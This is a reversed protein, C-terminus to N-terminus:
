HFKEGRELMEIIKKMRNIKTEPKKATQLRWAIAYTNTKNLTEYFAKAKKNKNLENTFEAPLEIRKPPDYAAQWRGDAKAKEVEALGPPKMRGEDILRQIHETNRKSWISKSRRPTFKQLYAEEDLSKAQSDIWGYCLAVDLAEAYVISKKNSGKKYFKLWVGPVTAHHKALWAEWQDPTEFTLVPYDDPM